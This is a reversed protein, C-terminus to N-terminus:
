LQRMNESNHRIVIRYVQCYIQIIKMRRLLSIRVTRNLYKPTFWIIATTSTKEETLISQRVASPHYAMKIKEKLHLLTKNFNIM